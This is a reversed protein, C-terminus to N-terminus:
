VYKLSKNSQTYYDGVVYEDTNLEEAINSTAFILQYGHKNESKLEEIENLRKVIMRQFNKAREEEMGKDEMNDSFMLRPYMMSPVQMSAFFLAFRAAMKLYFESSASLKIRQNSIYAINQKYSVEFDSAQMFETQRDQDNKLMYVGSASISRKIAKKNQGIRYEAAQIYRRLKIDQAKLNEMQKQLSEYREAQELMTRYQNIDGEKYGIEQILQDIEEDQSSRVNKVANDYQKQATVLLQKKTNLLTEKELLVNENAQMLLRSERIQFDLELRIRIAQTKGKSNDVPSKCLRCHGDDVSDDIKTLCEPCYELHLSDFYDRTAISRDLAEIKSLLASIFYKNDKQEAKLQQIDTELDVCDKRYSVIQEQLRQYEYKPPQNVQQRDQERGSSDFSNELELSKRRLVQVKETNEKIEKTLNDIITRIFAVSKADPNALTEGTYKIAVATEEIKKLVSLHELKADSLNQDYLGMLLDSVTERIIEKDFQEFFFLSSLPSEQDLYILRLIQHMTINSDAKFEPLGMIEFLVNSFSRRDATTKYGYKQWGDHHELAEDMTGYYFYMPAYGNVRGDHRKELYRKLTIVKNDNICVEAMVYDCKLAEPVFDGYCGGMIFFIFRVITSKGSSNQGRIINVGRHFPEDYAVDGSLTVIRLRQLFLSNPM